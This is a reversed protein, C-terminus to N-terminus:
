YQLYDSLSRISMAAILLVSSESRRLSQLIYKSSFQQFQDSKCNNGLYFYIFPNTQYKKVNQLKM